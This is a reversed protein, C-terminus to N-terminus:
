DDAVSGRVGSGRGRLSGPEGGGVSGGSGGFDMEGSGAAFDDGLDAGTVLRQLAALITARECAPM